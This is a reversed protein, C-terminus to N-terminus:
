KSYLEVILQEQVPLGVDERTPLSVVKGTANEEDLELWKPVGRSKASELSQQLFPNKGYKPSVSLVEGEDLIYSPINVRRDGVKVHGHRVVLRAQRRSSAFGLRYVANDLRRELLQL